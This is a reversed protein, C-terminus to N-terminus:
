QNPHNFLKYNALDMLCFIRENILYPITLDSLENKPGHQFVIYYFVDQYGKKTNIHIQM